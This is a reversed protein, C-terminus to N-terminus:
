GDISQCRLDRTIKNINVAINGFFIGIKNNIFQQKREPININDQNFDDHLEQQHHPINKRNYKLRFQPIHHYGPLIFYQLEPQINHFPQYDNDANIAVFLM